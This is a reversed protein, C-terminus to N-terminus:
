CSKIVSSGCSQPFLSKCPVSLAKQAGPGLLLLVWQRWFHSLWVQRHTNPLRYCICPNVTAQQLTLPLALQQGPLCPMSSYTRKSSTAKIGVM